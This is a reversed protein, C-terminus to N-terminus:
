TFAFKSRKERIPLWRRLLYGIYSLRTKPLNLKEYSPRPLFLRGDKIEWVIDTLQHGHKLSSKWDALYILLKLKDASLTQKDPHHAILYSVINELSIM